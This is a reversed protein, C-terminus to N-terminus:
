LKEKLYQTVFEKDSVQKETIEIVEISNGLRKKWDLYDKIIKLGEEFLELSGSFQKESNIFIVKNEKDMSLMQIFDDPNRVGVILKKDVKQLNLFKEYQKVSYYNDEKLKSLAYNTLNEKFEFSFEDKTGKNILEFEKRAWSGAEYIQYGEKQFLNSLTTKGTKTKGLIFLQM